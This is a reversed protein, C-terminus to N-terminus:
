HKPDSPSAQMETEIADRLTKVLKELDTEEGFISPIERLSRERFVDRAAKNERAGLFVDSRRGARLDEIEQLLARSIMTESHYQEDGDLCKEIVTHLLRVHRRAFTRLVPATIPGALIVEESLELCEDCIHVSPGAILSTVEHQSKGCFSCYLLPPQRTPATASPADVTPKTSARAAPPKKKTM